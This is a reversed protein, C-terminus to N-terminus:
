MPIGIISGVLRNSSSQDTPETGPFLPDLIKDEPSLKNIDNKPHVIIVICPKYPIHDEIDVNINHNIALKM